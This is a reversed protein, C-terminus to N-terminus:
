VATFSERDSSSHFDFSVSRSSITRNSNTRYTSDSDAAEHRTVTTYHSLTYMSDGDAEENDESNSQDVSEVNTTDRLVATPAQPSREVSPHEDKREETEDDDDDEDHYSQFRTRQAGQGFIADKSEDIVILPLELVNGSVQRIMSDNKSTITTERSDSARNKEAYDGGDTSISVPDPAISNQVKKAHNSHELYYRYLMFAVILVIIVCFAGLYVPNNNIQMWMMVLGGLVFPQVFRIMM